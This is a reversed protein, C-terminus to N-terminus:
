TKRKINIFGIEVGKLNMIYLAHQKDLKQKITENPKLKKIWVTEEGKFQWILKLRLTHNSINTIQNKTGNVLIGNSSTKFKNITRSSGSCGTTLIILLLIFLLLYKKNM